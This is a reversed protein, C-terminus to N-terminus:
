RAIVLREKLIRFSAKSVGEIMGLQDIDSFRGNAKRYAIIVSATPADIGKIQSLAASDVTNADIINRAARGYATGQKDQNEYEVWVIPDEKAARKVITDANIRAQSGKFAGWAAVLKKDKEGGNTKHVWLPMSARVAFLILMVACLSLLGIRETRSFSTYSQFFKKMECSGFYFIKLLETLLNIAM